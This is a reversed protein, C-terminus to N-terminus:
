RILPVDLRFQDSLETMLLESIALTVWGLTRATRSTPVSCGAAYGESGPAQFVETPWSVSAAPRPDLRESM